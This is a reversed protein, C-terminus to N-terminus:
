FYIHVRAFCPGELDYNGNLFVTANQHHFISRAFDSLQKNAFGIAVGDNAFRAVLNTDRFSGMLEISIPSNQYVSSRLLWRYDKQGNRAPKKGLIYLSGRQESRYKAYEVRSYKAIKRVLGKGLPTKGFTEALAGLTARGLTNLDLNGSSKM